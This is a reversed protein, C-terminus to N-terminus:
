KTKPTTSTPPFPTMNTKRISGSLVSKRVWYLQYRHEQVKRCIEPKMSPLIFTWILPCQPEHPSLPPSLLLSGLILLYSPTHSFPPIFISSEPSTQHSQHSLPSQIGVHHRPKTRDARHPERDTWQNWSALATNEITLNRFDKMNSHFQLASRPYM